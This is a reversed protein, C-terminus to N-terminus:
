AQTKLHLGFPLQFGTPLVYIHYMNAQDVLNDRPPFVEVAFRRDGCLEEKIRMKNAWSVDSEDHRRIWLHTIEGWASQEKSFQVSYLRNVMAKYIEKVPHPGLKHSHDEWEGWKENKNGKM